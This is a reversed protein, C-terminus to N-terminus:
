GQGVKIVATDSEPEAALRATDLLVCECVVSGVVDAYTQPLFTVLVNLFAASHM